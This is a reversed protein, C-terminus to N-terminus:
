QINKTRELSPWSALGSRDRGQSEPRFHLRAKECALDLDPIGGLRGFLLELTLLDRGVAQDSSLKYQIHFLRRCFNQLRRNKNSMEEKRGRFLFSIVDRSICKIAELM